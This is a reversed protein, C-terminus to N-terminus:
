VFQTIARLQRGGASVPTWAWGSSCYRETFAASTSQQLRPRGGRSERDSLSPYAGYMGGRVQEGIEFAEGCSGHDTGSGVTM